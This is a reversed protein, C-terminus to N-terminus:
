DKKFIEKVLEEQGKQLAMWIECIQSFRKLDWGKKEKLAWVEKGSLKKLYDIQKQTLESM